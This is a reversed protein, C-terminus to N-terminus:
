RPASSWGPYVFKGGPNTHFKSGSGRYVYKGGPNTHFKGASGGYPVYKAGPNTGGGKFASDAQGPLPSLSVALVASILYVRRLMKNRVRRYFAISQDLDRVQLACHTFAPRM